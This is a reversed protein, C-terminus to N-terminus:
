TARKQVGFAKEPHRAGALGFTTLVPLVRNQRSSGLFGVASMVGGISQPCRPGAGYASLVALGASVIALWLLFIMRTLGQEYLWLSLPVAFGCVGLMYAIPRPLDRGGLFERWPVYHLLWEALVIYAILHLETM